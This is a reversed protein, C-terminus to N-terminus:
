PAYSLPDNPETGLTLDTVNDEWWSIRDGDGGRGDGGGRGDTGGGSGGYADGGCGVQGTIAVSQIGTAGIEARCGSM